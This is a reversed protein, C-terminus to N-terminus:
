LPIVAEAIFVPRGERLESNLRLEGGYKVVCREINGLGFGHNYKDSKTSIPRGEALEVLRVASNECVM